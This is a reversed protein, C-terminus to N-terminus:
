NSSGGRGIRAQIDDALQSARFEIIRVDALGRACFPDERMIRGTEAMWRGCALHWWLDPQLSSQISALAFAAAIPIAVWVHRLEPQKM